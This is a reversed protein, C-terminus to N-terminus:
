EKSKEVNRLQEPSDARGAQRGREVGSRYSSLGAGVAAPSRHLPAAAAAIQSPTGVGGPIYNTMPIRKPLGAETEGGTRPAAAARARQWSADAASGWEPRVSVTGTPRNRATPMPFRARILTPSQAAKRGASAATPTIKETEAAPEERFWDSEISEFIALTVDPAAGSDTIEGYRWHKHGGPKKAASPKVYETPQDDDDRVGISAALAEHQDGAHPPPVSGTGTAQTSESTRASTDTVGDGEPADDSVHLLTAPLTVTAVTGQPQASALSVAIGHRTALKAVVHLGMMRSRQVNAAHPAALRENLETLQVPTMGIGSDRIEIVISGRSIRTLVTVDTRPPSFTTANEALEAVLHVVDSVAHATVAVPVVDSIKVRTYQETEAGAARLVDLLGATRTWRSGAEAGALVLLNEDNRRMRTVLHDLQFLESLRDPDQESRELKDILRILRDVLLQSRRALNVFTASVSMRLQAQLVAIDIAERHVLDFAHAVDGIEGGTRGSQRQEIVEIATARVKAVKPGSSRAADIDRLQAVVDPLSRHAVELASHLLEGLPRAMSRAIRLTVMVSLAILVLALLAVGLAYLLQETRVSSGAAASDSNLQRAVANVLETKVAASSQWDEAVLGTEGSAGARVAANEADLVSSLPARSLRREVLEREDAGAVQNFQALYAEQEQLSALFERYSGPGFGSSVIASYLLHAEQTWAEVYHAFLAASRLRDALEVLRVDDPASEVVALVSGIISGYRQMAASTGTDNQAVNDRLSPLSRASRIVGARVTAIRSDAVADLGGTAEAFRTLAADVAKARDSFQADDPTLNGALITAAAAREAQLAQTLQTAHANINSARRADTADNFNAVFHAIGAGGLLAIALVPTVLGLLLKKRITWRFHPPSAPTRLAWRRRKVPPGSDSPEEPPSDGSQRESDANGGDFRDAISHSPTVGDFSLATVTDPIDWDEAHKSSM